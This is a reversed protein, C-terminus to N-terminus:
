PTQVFGLQTSKAYEPGVDDWTKGEPPWYTFSGMQSVVTGAPCDYLFFKGRRVGQKRAQKIAEPGTTGRGWVTPGVAIICRGEAAVVTKPDLM